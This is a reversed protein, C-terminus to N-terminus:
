TPNWYGVLNLTPDADNPPRTKGGLATLAGGWADFAQNIGNEVVLLVQHEFGQPLSAIKNSIGSSLEGAPGWFSRSVMFNGAPSLVFANAAPDFFVWPSDDPYGSFTPIAFQGAFAIHKLQRPYQSFSPFSFSNPAADTNEISFLVARRELYARMYAHRPADSRFDFSLQVYSGLRDSGQSSAVNSLPFGVDGGFSWAPNLTEVTYSGSDRVSVTVGLPTTLTASAWVSSLLALHVTAGTLIRCFM